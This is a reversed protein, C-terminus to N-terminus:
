SPSYDRDPAAHQHWKQRLIKRFIARKRQGPASVEPCRFNGISPTAPAAGPDRQRTIRWQELDMDRLLALDFPRNRDTEWWALFTLLTQRTAKIALESRRSASLHDLYSKVTIQMQTGETSTIPIYSVWRTWNESVNFLLNLCGNVVFEGVHPPPLSLCVRRLIANRRCTLRFVPVYTSIQEAPQGEHCPRPTQALVLFVVFRLLVLYVDEAVETQSKDM